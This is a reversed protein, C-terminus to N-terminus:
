NVCDIIVDNKNKYNDYIIPRYLKFKNIKKIEEPLNAINIRRYQSKISTPYCTNSKNAITTLSLSRKMTPIQLYVYEDRQVNEDCVMGFYRRIMMVAIFSSISVCNFIGHAIISYGLNLENLYQSLLFTMFCQSISIVIKIRFSLKELNFFSNSIHMSGFLISIILKYNTFDCLLTNLSSRFVSEEVFPGLIICWFIIEICMKVNLDIKVMEIKTKHHIFWVLIHHFITYIILSNFNDFM